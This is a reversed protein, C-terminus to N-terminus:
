PLPEKELTLLAGQGGLPAGSELRRILEEAAIPEPTVVVIWDESGLDDDLVLSDPATASGPPIPISRYYVSVQGRQDRGLLSLYGGSETEVTLRLQDGARLLVGERYAFAREGRKATLSAKLAGRAVITTREPRDPRDPTDAARFLWLASLVALGLVSAASLVPWLFPKPRPALALVPHARFFVARERQRAELHERLAPNTQLGAELRAAQEATLDGCLYEEIELDSWPEFRRRVRHRM